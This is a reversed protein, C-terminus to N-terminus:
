EEVRPSCVVEVGKVRGGERMFVCSCAIESKLVQAAREGQERRYCEWSDFGTETLRAGCAVLLGPKEARVSM